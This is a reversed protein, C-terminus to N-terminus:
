QDKMIRKFSVSIDYVTQIGGIYDIVKIYEQDVLKAFISSVIIKSIGFHTAIDINSKGKGQNAIYYQIKNRLSNFDPYSTELYDIFTTTFITIPGLQNGTFHMCELYGQEELYAISQNIDEYSLDTSLITVLDFPQIVFNNKELVLRCATKLVLKDNSTLDSYIETQQLLISEAMVPPQSEAMVPPKTPINLIKNKLRTFESDFKDLDSFNCYVIDTLLEPLSDMPLNDLIVPILEVKERVLMSFGAALEKKVWPKDISNNSLVVVFYGSEKIGENIREYLSDGPSIEWEDFWCKIGNKHFEEALRRAFRDKDESAHSLFVQPITDVNNPM